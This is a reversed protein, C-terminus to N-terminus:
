REFNTFANYIGIITNEVLVQCALPRGEFVGTISSIMFHYTVLNECICAKSRM